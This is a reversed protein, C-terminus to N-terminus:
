NMLLRLAVILASCVWEALLNAGPQIPSIILLLQHFAWRGFRFRMRGRPM